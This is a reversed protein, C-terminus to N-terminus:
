EQQKKPILKLILYTKRKALSQEMRASEVMQERESTRSKVAGELLSVALAIDISSKSEAAKKMRDTAEQLLTDAVTRKEQESARLKKRKSELDEIEKKKDHVEQLKRKSDEEFAAKEKESLEEKKKEDLYQQYRSRASRALNLLEKTIVFREPKGGYLRLTDYVMLRADLVRESMLAQDEGLIRGSRSFGREVDASGHSLTLVAKILKTLEPYKSDGRENVLGFYHSWFHDIRTIDERPGTETRLLLWEAQAVDSSVGIAIERAVVAIDAISRSDKMNIPSLCRLAELFGDKELPCKNLIHRIGAIFHKRVNVYFIAKDKLTAKEGFAREVNESVIPKEAFKEALNLMEPSFNETETVFDPTFVRGCLTVVLRKIESHLVHILPEEKQFLQTFSMFLEASALVFELQAKMTANKIYAVIKLFKPTSLLNKLKKERPVFNLFYELIAPWQQMIRALARGITLWRSPVHKMFANEPVGVKKQCKRYDECRAPWGDFFSHVLIVFDSSEEGFVQLGKLFANHIIHINCTGINLMGKGTVKKKEANFKNWVSKNVNPGDSGLTILKELPLQNQEIASMIKRYLDDSTAHGMFSTCLHRSQIENGYSSWYRVRIQLEKMGANNTTEDYELVFYSQIDKM